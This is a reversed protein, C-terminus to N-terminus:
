EYLARDESRDRRLKALRGLDRRGGRGRRRHLVPHLARFPGGRRRRSRGALGLRLPTEAAARARIYADRTLPRTEVRDTDGHDNHMKLTLTDPGVAAGADALEGNDTKGDLLGPGIDLATPGLLSPHALLVERRLPIEGDQPLDKLAKRAEDAADTTPYHQV